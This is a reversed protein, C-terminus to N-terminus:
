SVKIVTKLATRKFSEKVRQFEASSHQLEVRKLQEGAEMNDWYLPLSFDSVVSFM